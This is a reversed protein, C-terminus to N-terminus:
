EVKILHYYKESFLFFFNEMLFKKKLHLWIQLKEWIQDCRSFFDKISFKMKQATDECNLRINKPVVIFVLSINKKGIILLETKIVLCILLGIMLYLWYKKNPNYKAINTYIHDMDNSYEIFAKLDNFYKLGTSEWKKILLQCKEEYPDKAYSYIQDIDPEINILNLM